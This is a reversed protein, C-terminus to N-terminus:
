VLRKHMSGLVVNHSAKNLSAKEQAESLQEKLENVVQTMMISAAFALFLIVMGISLDGFTFM